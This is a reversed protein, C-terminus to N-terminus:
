GVQRDCGFFSIGLSILLTPPNSRRLLEAVTLLPITRLPYECASSSQLEQPMMSANPADADRAAITSVIMLVSESAATPLM